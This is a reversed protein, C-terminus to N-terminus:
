PSVVFSQMAYVFTQELKSSLNLIPSLVLVVVKEEHIQYVMRHKQTIRRSYFGSLGYKKLQPKGSGTKPHERLELLLKELKQYALKDTKKLFSIDEVANPSIILEYIM